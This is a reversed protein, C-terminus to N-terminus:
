GRIEGLIGRKYNKRVYEVLIEIVGQESYITYGDSRAKLGEAQPPLDIAENGFYYFEEGILVRNTQTARKLNMRNMEEDPVCFRSYEQVWKYGAHHYINDGYTHIDDRDFSPRKELFREDEWYADYTLVEDVRMMAVIKGQLPSGLAGYLVIWDGVEACKRILARGTSLTCYDFFPNLVYPCNQPMPFSCLKM